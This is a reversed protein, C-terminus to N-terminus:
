EELIHIAKDLILSKTTEIDKELLLGAAYAHGGGGWESLFEGLNFGNLSRCSVKTKSPGLEKFYFGAKVGDLIMLYNVLDDGDEIRACFKRLMDQRLEMSAVKNKPSLKLTTFIEGMLKLRVPSEREYLETYIKHPEVGAKLLEAALLHTQPTTGSFRFGGTDTEIAAYLPEALSISLPVNISKLLKAIVEGTASATADILSNVGEPIEVIHHDIVLMGSCKKIIPLVTGLRDFAGMDVVVAFYGSPNFDKSLSPPDIIETENELLFLLNKPTKSHNLVVVKKGLSKLGRALALASGIGDGDPSIHTTILFADNRLFVNLVDGSIVMLVGLCFINLGM